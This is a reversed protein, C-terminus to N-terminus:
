EIGYKKETVFKPAQWNPGKVIHGKESKALKGEKLLKALAPYLQAKAVVDFNYKVYM